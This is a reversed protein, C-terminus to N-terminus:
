TTSWPTSQSQDGWATLGRHSGGAFECLATPQLPWRMSAPKRLHWLVVPQHLDIRGNGCITPFLRGLTRLLRSLSCVNQDGFVLVQQSEGIAVRDETRRLKPGPMAPM